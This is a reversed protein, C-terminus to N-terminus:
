RTVRAVVRAPASAVVPTSVTAVENATGCSTVKPVGRNQRTVATASRAPVSTRRPEDDIWSTLKRVGGFAGFVSLMVTEPLSRVTEHGASM